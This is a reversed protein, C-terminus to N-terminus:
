GESLGTGVESIHSHQDTNQQVCEALYFSPVAVFSLPLM